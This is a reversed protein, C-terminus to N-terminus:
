VEVLGKLASFQNKTQRYIEIRSLPKPSYNNQVFSYSNSSAAKSEGNQINRTREEEVAANIAMARNGSLLASLQGSSRQVSSLDLVPRITPQTDMGSDIFEGIRAITERLGNKASAAVSAGADYSRESYDALSKIFGLGFFGGIRYGVKSPSHIQLEEAAAQAAAKAMGKAKAEAEWRTEDIGQAFGRVLYEGASYFSPRKERILRVCADTLSGFAEKLSLLKGRAGLILNAIFAEGSATFETLKSRLSSLAEGALTVFSQKMEEKRSDAGTKFFQVMSQGAAEIKNEADAFAGIFNEIGTEALATLSRSFQSVGNTRLDGIEDFLRMLGRFEETTDKLKVTDIWSVKNYYAFLAEGFSVLQRGFAEMDSEGTFWSIIGGSSPLNSALEVLAKAANASNTVVNGNLGAVAASYERMSHGFPVLRQGFVALDQEGTFWSVLGGTNPLTGALETLAEGAAASSQIAEVRLGAVAYSYERMSHGFVILREGFKEMDTEGSFWGVLGGSKPLMDAMEALTKGADSAKTIAEGDIGTVEDSFAKMAQGFPVLQDAFDALSAGGTFWSTLSDVLNAATLLLIAETLAKIGDLMAPDIAAAGELFPQVRAMFESLDDAIDIFSASVGSAFGGAIGGAFKGIATGVAQLLDGGKGILWHLGPLLSIAGVAALVLALEAIVAGMGLVGIMAGPVLLAVATLAAMVASLIGVGIIGEMLIDTDISKFAEVVGTFFAMIVDIGAQILSPLNAAIGELVAVLFQFISDVVSPTYRVIAKLIEDVLLLAGDVIPPICEILVDLLEFILEKLAAGIPAASQGLVKMFDVIGEALKIAIQPLLQALALVVLSLAGVIAAAGAAGIAALATLGTALAAIGSGALLLSAGVALLSVTMLAIAAALSLIVPVIPGLVLGAVGFVLFTGAIATLGKAIAEWSMQGLILLLPTIMALAVAAGELFPQVRAMFESLDDAIDIFSASVGSAFGGAIGGAFKGIATGVAQLLDGGKGILWHLGPLLSIAGVAALVLALEAIVAGMGLVGIMAGPVLLAVATLAAMVASLIGVGIIGEMLIDTDISKFAEVVGTFFAMIVDIGAQILSPLNAAIGELVAVLFQFISDVVSPTYRVIAKLIEDVLLLAGDVIPPICEILVDLLEFILEKLAAGIPAASQGLVKMFDVIGEALKIAIQPLLQALALVVLSLAGVIAAAGAAGIAALATLGTALAAIGSGALLLSAGVALLSVTMLAIAAALSLIVPVIPGLVLGAVGFVLFTGAIATLGKAIAEWSMQGLILLLPTIMALAVAAVLMAASGALTGQMANLGMVLIALSGGLVTLGTAVEDIEMGGMIRLVGALIALAASVITLGIGIAPLNKPMQKLSVSVMLLMGALGSLGLALKEPEMESLSRVSATFIRIAVGFFVLGVGASLGNKGFKQFDTGNLFLSLETLLVGVGTLGVALEEWNMASLQKCVTALMKIVVVFQIVTTAGKAVSASQKSLAKMSETMMLLLAGIGVLGIGLEEMNLSSIKKLAGALILLSVSMAIMLVSSKQIDGSKKVVKTFIAMSGMLEGFLLIMAGLSADLKESDIMALVLISATLIAIAKAIKMLVDAKISTQWAEFCGKVSDLIGVVSDKISGVDDFPQKLLDVFKKIGLAIGGISLGKLLNIIDSVEVRKLKETLNGFADALVTGVAQAVRKVAEWLTELFQVVKSNRITEGLSGMASGIKEKMSSAAEGAKDMGNRIHDLLKGFAEVPKLDRFAAMAKSVYPQIKGFIEGLSPVKEYLEQIKAKIANFGPLNLKQQVMKWFEQLHVCVKRVIDIISQVAKKFLNNRKIAEDVGALWKGLSGTVSLIGGNVKGTIGLLPGVLQLVASLAQKVIDLVAFLGKFTNKLNESTEESMKFKETLEKLKVTFDYLQEGTMAPFIERFAEAIPTIVSKLGYFANTAAEILETRGGLDKWGQLMDNRASSQADIFGGIVNSLSTWLKKAEEFDGFLIEWTMAWGSGVAEQLTEMLQTFTKVDQAAAFAKKGIETTEDAYDRLTSVLAETTMWQYALSDNFNHTADITENLKKGAGNSTLVQYMGDATKKVTGCAVASELLHTKFEVTAMNANEISKWDILKVYGASLAQAFNYMARSAEQANAGSVAAENSVGQIAMVADKLSVGANTFKGINSTMDAFSYITRDAYTNLENLYGNVEELSAGTSMMITQISGMKQEYEDFGQKIPEITLSELMQKGTNIVSNTINALATVAMVELASFRSKVSEVASGLGSMDLKRAASDIEEFGKAAGDLRLSQKLRDLTSLSTKVNSEFQKNDFRMEVVRQDITKSM